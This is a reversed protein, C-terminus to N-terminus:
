RRRRELPDLHRRPGADKETGRGQKARICLDLASRDTDEAEPGVKRVVSEVLVDNRHKQFRGANRRFGGLGEAVDRLAVKHIKLGGIRKGLGHHRAGFHALHLFNLADEGLTHSRTSRLAADLSALRALFAAFLWVTVHGSTPCRLPSLLFKKPAVGFGEAEAEAGAGGEGEEEGEENEEEEEEEGDESM